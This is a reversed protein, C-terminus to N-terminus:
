NTSFIVYLSQWNGSINKIKKDSSIDIKKVEFGREYNYDCDYIDNDILIKCIYAAISNKISKVPLLETVYHNNKFFIGNDISESDKEQEPPDHYLYYSGCYNIVHSYLGLVNTMEARSSLKFNLILMQGDDFLLSVPGTMEMKEIKKDFKREIIEDPVEAEFDISSEYIIYDTAAYVYDDHYGVFKFIDESEKILHSILQGDVFYWKNPTIYTESDVDIVNGSIFKTKTEDVAYLDGNFTLVFSYGYDAAYCAKIGKISLCQTIDKKIRRIEGQALSKKCLEKYSSQKWLNIGPYKDELYFKYFFEDYLTSFQKNLTALYCVPLQLGIYQLLETPLFDM